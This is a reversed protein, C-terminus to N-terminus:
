APQVGEDESTYFIDHGCSRTYQKKKLEANIEDQLRISLFYEDDVFSDGSEESTFRKGKSFQPRNRMYHPLPVSLLYFDISARILAADSNPINYVRYEVKANDDREISRIFCPGPLEEFGILERFLIPEALKKRIDNHPIGSERLLPFYYNLAKLFEQDGGEKLLFPFIFDIGKKNLEDRIREYQMSIELRVIPEEVPDYYFVTSKKGFINNRVNLLIPLIRISEPRPDIKQIPSPKQITQMSLVPRKYFFSFALKCFTKLRKM